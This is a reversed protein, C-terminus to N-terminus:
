GTNLHEQGVSNVCNDRALIDCHRGFGVMAKSQAAM